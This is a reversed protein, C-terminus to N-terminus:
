GRARAYVDLTAATVHDLSFEGAAIRRGAEGMRRRLDGDALLRAIADALAAPQRPPVLLGNEEHRVIERCGPWDSAVIARGCASAEILIKPVGEGYVTPLCVVHAAALVEPMRSSRGRWTLLGERQWAELEGATHSAPNDADPEGVLELRFPVQRARLLRAAEVLDAIGKDRLMRGAYLVVPEGPPEARPRFEDLDVGAGRILAVHGPRGIGRRALAAEDDPNQVITWAQRRGLLMRLLPVAAARGVRARRTESSFLFGLGAIANVVATDRLGLAALGGFVVPKLAVLHLISPRERRLLTRLDRVAAFEARLSVAGRRLSIPLCRIGAAELADGHIGFRAALAVDHGEALLRRALPLRHSVFYWDETVVFLVRQKLV